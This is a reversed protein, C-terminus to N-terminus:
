LPRGVAEGTSTDWLRATKDTGATAIMSGDASFAVSRIEGGHPLPEGLPLGSSADWRRPPGVRGGTLLVSGDPSFAAAQVEGGHELVSFLEFPHQLRAAALNTRIVHKLDSAEPPALRLSNGLVLMGRAIDE